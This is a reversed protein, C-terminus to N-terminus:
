PWREFSAMTVADYMWLMPDRVLSVNRMCVQWSAGLVFGVLLREILDNM